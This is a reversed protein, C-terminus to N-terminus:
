KDKMAGQVLDVMYAMASTKPNDPLYVIEVESGIENENYVDMSVNVTNSIKEADKTNFIYQFRYYSSGSKSSRHHTKNVITANVRHGNKALSVLEQGRKKIFVFFLAPVIFIIFLWFIMSM